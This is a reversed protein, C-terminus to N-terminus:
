LEAVSSLWGNVNEHVLVLRAAEAKDERAKLMGPLKDIPVGIYPLPMMVMDLGDPRQEDQPEDAQSRIRKMRQNQNDESGTTIGGPYLINEWKTILYINM